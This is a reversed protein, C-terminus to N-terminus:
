AVMYVAQAVIRFHRRASDLAHACATPDAVGFAVCGMHGIAIQLEPYPGILLLNFGM